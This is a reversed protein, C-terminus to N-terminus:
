NKLGLIKELNEFPKHTAPIFTKLSFPNKKHSKSYNACRRTCYLAHGYFVVERSKWTKALEYERECSDADKIYVYLSTMYFARVIITDQYVFVLWCDSNGKSVKKFGTYKENM